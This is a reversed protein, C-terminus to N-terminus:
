AAASYLVVGDDLAQRVIPDGLRYRRELDEPTKELCVVYRDYVRLAEAIESQFADVTM